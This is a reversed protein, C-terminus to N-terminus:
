PDVLVIDVEPAAGQGFTLSNPGWLEGKLTISIQPKWNCYTGGQTQPKVCSIGAHAHLTAQRGRVMLPSRPTPPPDAGSCGRRRGAHACCLNALSDCGSAWLRGLWAEGGGANLVLLRM